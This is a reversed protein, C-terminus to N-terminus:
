RISEQLLTREHFLADRLGRNYKAQLVRMRTSHGTEKNQVDVRGFTWVGDIQRLDRGETVRDLHGAADFYEQHVRMQVDTRVWIEARAYGLSSQLAPTKPKASVVAVEFSQGADQWTKAGVYQADFDRWAFGGKVDEYTLDTGVFNDGREAAPIRRLKKLAPLYLWVDDDAAEGKNDFSLLGVQRVSAPSLFVTVQRDQRRGGVDFRKRFLKATRVREQGARDVLTLEVDWETDDGENREDVARLIAAGDPTEARLALAPQRASVGALVGVSLGAALLRSRASM